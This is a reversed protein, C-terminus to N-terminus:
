LTLSSSLGPLLGPDTVSTQSKSFCEKTKRNNIASLQPGPEIGAFLARSVSLVINLPWFVMVCM